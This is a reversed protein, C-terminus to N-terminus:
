SKSWNSILIAATRLGNSQGYYFEGDKMRGRRLSDQASEDVKDAEKYIIALIEDIVKQKNKM